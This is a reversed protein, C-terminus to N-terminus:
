GNWAREVQDDILRRLRDGADTDRAASVPRPAPLDPWQGALSAPSPQRPPAERRAHPFAGASLGVPTPALAFAARRQEEVGAGTTWAPAVRDPAARPPSFDPAPPPEAAAELWSVAIRAEVPPEAAMDSVRPQAPAAPGAFQLPAAVPLAQDRAPLVARPSAATPELQVAFGVRRATRRHELWAVKARPEPAPATAANELPPRAAQRDPTSFRLAPRPTAPVAARDPAPRAVPVEGSRPSPWDGPAPAAFPATEVGPAAGGDPEFADGAGLRTALLEIWADPADPYQERLEARRAEGLPAAERLAAAELWATVARFAPLVVSALTGLPGNM